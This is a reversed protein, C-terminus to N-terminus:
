MNMRTLKKLLCIARDTKINFQRFTYQFACREGKQSKKLTKGNEEERGKGREVKGGSRVFNSFRNLKRL